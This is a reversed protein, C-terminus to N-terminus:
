KVAAILEKGPKFRAVKRAAIKIPKGTQPNRGTRAARKTVSFTGFGMLQVKEGRKLSKRMSELTINIASEAKVKSISAGKAILEILDTKNM